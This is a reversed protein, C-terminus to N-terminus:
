GGVTVRLTRNENGRGLTVPSDNFSLFAGGVNGFTIIFPAKGEVRISTDEIQLSSIIVEGSSDIVEIWCDETFSFYLHDLSKAKLEVVENVATLNLSTAVSVSEAEQRISTDIIRHSNGGLVPSVVDQIADTQAFVSSFADADMNALSENRPITEFAPQIAASKAIALPKTSISPKVSIDSELPLIEPMQLLNNNHIITDAQEEMVMTHSGDLGLYDSVLFWGVVIAIGMAHPLWWKARSVPVTQEVNSVLGCDVEGPGQANYVHLIEAEPINVLKAYNKIYGRIFLESIFASKDGIELCMLKNQTIKLAEACEKRSLNLKERQKALVSGVALLDSRANNEIGTSERNM